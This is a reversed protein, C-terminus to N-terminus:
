ILKLSQIQVFVFVSCITLNTLDEYDTGLFYKFVFSCIFPILFRMSPDRLNEFKYEVKTLLVSSFFPFFLSGSVMSIGGDLPSFIWIQTLNSQNKIENTMSLGRRIENLVTLIILIIRYEMMKLYFNHFTESYFFLSWIIIHCSIQFDNGILSIKRSLIFSTIFSGFHSIQILLLFGTLWNMKKSKLKRVIEASFLVKIIFCFQHLTFNKYLLIEDLLM